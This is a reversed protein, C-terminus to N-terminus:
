PKVVRLCEYVTLFDTSLSGTSIHSTLLKQFKFYLTNYVDCVAARLMDQIPNISNNKESHKVHIVTILVEFM